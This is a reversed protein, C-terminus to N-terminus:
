PLPRPGGSASRNLAQKWSCTRTRRLSPLSFRLFDCPYWLEAAFTVAGASIHTDGEKQPLIHTSMTRLDQDVQVWHPPGPGKLEEQLIGIAPDASDHHSQHLLPPSTLVWWLPTAFCSRGIVVVREAFIM